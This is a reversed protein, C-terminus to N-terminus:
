PELCTTRGTPRPSLAPAMGFTRIPHPWLRMFGITPKMCILNNDAAVSSM